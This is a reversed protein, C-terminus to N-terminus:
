DPPPGSPPPSDAMSEDISELPEGGALREAVEGYETGFDEGTEAAVSQMYRGVAKPDDDFDPLRSPDTLREMRREEPTTVAVRSILQSLDGSQCAPCTPNDAEMAAITEYHLTFRTKCARCRFDYAPM